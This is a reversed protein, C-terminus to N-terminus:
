SCPQHHQRVKVVVKERVRKQKSNLVKDMRAIREMKVEGAEEILADLVVDLMERALDLMEIAEDRAEDLLTESSSLFNWLDKWM